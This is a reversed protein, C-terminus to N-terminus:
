AMKAQTKLKSCQELIDALAIYWFFKKKSNKTNMFKEKFFYYKQNDHEYMSLEGALSPFTLTLMADEM